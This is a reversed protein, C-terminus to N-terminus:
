RTRGGRRQRRRPHPQAEAAPTSTQGASTSTQAASAAARARALRANQVSIFMFAIAAVILRGAYQSADGGLTLLGTVVGTVLMAWMVLSLDKVRAPSLFHRYSANLALALMLVMAGTTLALTVYMPGERVTPDPDVIFRVLSTVMMATVVFVVLVLLFLSGGRALRAGPAPDSTLRPARGAARRKDSRRSM